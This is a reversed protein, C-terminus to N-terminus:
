KERDILQWLIKIVGASMLKLVQAFLFLDNWPKLDLDELLIVQRTGTKSMQVMPALIKEQTGDQYILQRNVYGSEQSLIELV